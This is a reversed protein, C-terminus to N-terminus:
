FCIDLSIDHQMLELIKERIAVVTGGVSSEADVDVDGVGVGVGVGVRSGSVVVFPLHEFLLSSTLTLLGNEV